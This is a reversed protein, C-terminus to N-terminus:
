CPYTVGRGGKALNDTTKDINVTHAPKPQKGATLLRGYQGLMTAMGAKHPIEGDLLLPVPLRSALRRIVVLLTGLQRRRAGFVIPQRGSRLGHLLLRQAVEGLRHAVKEVAGMTARCPALDAPMFPKALDSEFRAVEFPQAAAVPLYPYRFYTPNPEPPGAADGVRHLRIADGQISRSAPVDGKGDDGFSNWAGTIAAHNADIAPHRRRRRQGGPLQQTNRAKASTFCLSQPSQLLTQRPRSGTRAPPCSGFLGDASQPGAFCVAAAFPYFLGGGIYGAAEVRDSDFVQIHSRHGTRRATSTFKRADVDRLFPAEVTLNVALAPAQQNGPKLVFSRPPEFRNPSRVCRLSARGAPMDRRFVALALRNELADGAARARAIGVHVGCAVDGGSPRHCCPSVEASAPRRVTFRV